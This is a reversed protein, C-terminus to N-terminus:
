QSTYRVLIVSRRRKYHFRKWDLNTALGLTGDSARRTPGNPLPIKRTTTPSSLRSTQPPEKPPTNTKSAAPGCEVNLKSPPSASQTVTLSPKGIISSKGFASPRALGSVPPKIKSDSSSTTPPTTPTSTPTSYKKPPSLGSTPKKLGSPKRLIGSSSEGPDSSCSELSGGTASQNRLSEATSERSMMTLSECSKKTLRSGPISTNSLKRINDSSKGHQQQSRLCDASKERKMRLNDLSRKTDTTTTTTRAPLGSKPKAIASKPQPIGAIAPPPPSTKSASRQSISGDSNDTTLSNSDSNTQKSSARPLTSRQLGQPARNTTSGSRPTAIGSPKQLSENSTVRATPARIGTASPARLGPKPIGGTAKTAPSPFQLLFPEFRRFIPSSKLHILIM